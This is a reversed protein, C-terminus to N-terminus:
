SEPCGEAERRRRGGGWTLPLEAADLLPLLASFRGDAAQLLQAARGIAEFCPCIAFAASQWTGRRLLKIVVNVGFPEM